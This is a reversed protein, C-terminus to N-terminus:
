QFREVNRSHWLLSSGTHYDADGVSVHWLPLRCMSLLGFSSLGFAYLPLLLPHIHSPYGKM